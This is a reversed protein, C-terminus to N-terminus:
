LVQYLNDSRVCLKCDVTMKDVYVYVIREVCVCLKKTSIYTTGHEEGSGM